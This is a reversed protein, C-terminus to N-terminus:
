IKIMRAELHDYHDHTILVVDVNPINNRPIPSETYRRALGPFPAANDLVSDILLRLGDIELIASSHGLWYLAYTSPVAPFDSKEFEVKPMEKKPANPSKTNIGLQSAITSSTESEHLQLVQKLRSMEIIISTM